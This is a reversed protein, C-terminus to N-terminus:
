QGSWPGTPDYPTGAPFQDPTWREQCRPCVPKIEGTRPRIAETVRVDSPQAGRSVLQARVHDEACMEFAEGTVKAGATTRGTSLVHSRSSRTPPPTLDAARAVLSGLGGPSSSDQHSPTIVAAFSAAGQTFLLAPILTAIRLVRLGTHVAGFM